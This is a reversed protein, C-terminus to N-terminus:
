KIWAWLVYGVIVAAIVLATLFDRLVIASFGTAHAIPRGQLMNFGAHAAFALVLVGAIGCVGILILQKMLECPPNDRMDVARHSCFLNKSSASEARELSKATL